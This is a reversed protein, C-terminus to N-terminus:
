KIISSPIIMKDPGLSTIVQYSNLMEIFFKMKRTCKLFGNYFLPINKKKKQLKLVWVSVINQIENIWENCSKDGKCYAKYGHGMDGKKKLLVKVYYRKCIIAVINVIEDSSSFKQKLAELYNIVEIQKLVPNSKSTKFIKQWGKNLNCM